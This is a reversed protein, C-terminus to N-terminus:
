EKIERSHSPPLGMFIRFEDFTALEESGDSYIKTYDGMAWEHPGDLSAQRIVNVHIEVVRRDLGDYGPRVSLSNRYDGDFGFDPAFWADGDCATRGAVLGDEGAHIWQEKSWIAKGFEMMEWHTADSPAVSWDVKDYSM